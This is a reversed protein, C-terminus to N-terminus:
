GSGPDFPAAYSVKPVANEATATGGSRTTAYYVFGGGRRAAAIQERVQPVGNPDTADIRNTGELARNPLLMTVGDYRQIFYYNAKDTGFHIAALQDRAGQQAQATTLQGAKEKKYWTDVVGAAVEALQKVEGRRDEMLNLRLESLSFGIALVLTVLLMPMFLMLRVSISMRKLM